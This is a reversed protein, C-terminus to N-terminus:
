VKGLIALKELGQQIGIHSVAKRQVMLAGGRQPAKDLHGSDFPSFGYEIGLQDTRQPLQGQRMHVLRLLPNAAFIITSQARM